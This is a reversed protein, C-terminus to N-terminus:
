HEDNPAMKALLSLHAGAEFANDFIHPTVGRDRLAAGLKAHVFASTTYRTVQSYHTGAVDRVMDVYADLVEPLVTFNDYDVIASVKRGLPRLQKELQTRIAEVDAPGRVTCGEFNAFFRDQEADFTFRRELPLSLMDNRLGMPEDKFIHAPMERLNPSIRPRFAMQALIEREVDIGPAVEVLELGANGGVDCLRFVCRETVYLASSGRRLAIGGSYTRHEVTQVFKQTRGERRIQLCGQEIGISLGGATFTGVFVVQKASQSINIFGGAGALQPGFRSVNLNGERDAQALGLFAIDLGGGDYFDFQYPQDIVAQTNIAAGFDLGGAPIGGIVGPETTLTLLDIVREENAVNAIGEPMGLGLNVVSNAKLEMAARRAIIKREDLPLPPVANAPVRVEGSFGASYHTGFTQWHLEPKALVVCDVLLGPVKVHRPNLTGRESIREVQAIVIGGSNHAATAMSLTELTLAEREMTLNGEADATTARIIAVQVPFAKYFLYEEGRITMLEVLAETTIENMRGGGHRPDVFTGLGIRSIHGPRGAAIDRFLCCIVGQPLNYAEIRNDLALKGLAPVLGWHGGVVRRVLGEHALHNLGKDHGDGQGAPYLLTLDRPGDGARFRAEIAVAIEEAFGIGVFGETAVTDGDRIL